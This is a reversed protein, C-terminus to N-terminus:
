SPWNQFSCDQPKTRNKCNSHIWTEKTGRSECCFFTRWHLTPEFFCFKQFYKQQWFGALETDFEWKMLIQQSVNVRKACACTICIRVKRLNVSEASECTICIWVKRLNVSEASECTACIWVKQLNVSNSRWSEPRVTQGQLGSCVKRRHHFRLFRRAIEAWKRFMYCNNQAHWDAIM